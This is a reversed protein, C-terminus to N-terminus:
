GLRSVLSRGGRPLLTARRAAYSARMRRLHRDYRGSEIMKALALQDLTPSGRDNVRKNEIVQEALAPPCLMWGIRLAPTGPAPACGDPGSAAPVLM